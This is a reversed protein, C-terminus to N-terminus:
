GMIALLVMAFSDDKRLDSFDISPFRDLITCAKGGSPLPGFLRMIECHFTCAYLCAAVCLRVFECLVCSAFPRLPAYYDLVHVRSLCAHLLPRALLALEAVPPYTYCLIARMKKQHGASWLLSIASTPSEDALVNTYFCIRCRLVTRISLTKFM